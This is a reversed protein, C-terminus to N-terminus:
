VMSIFGLKKDAESVAVNEAVVIGNEFLAKHIAIRKQTFKFNFYHFNSCLSM